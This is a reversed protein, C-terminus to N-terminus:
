GFAFCELVGRAIELREVGVNEDQAVTGGACRLKQRLSQFRAHDVGAVARMFVRSLTQEVQVRDPLFSTLDVVEM